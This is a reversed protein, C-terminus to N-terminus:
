QQTNNAYPTTRRNRETNEPLACGPPPREFFEIVIELFDNCYNKISALWLHIAFENACLDNCYGLSLHSRNKDELRPFEDCHRNRKSKRFHALTTRMLLKTMSVAPRSSHGDM